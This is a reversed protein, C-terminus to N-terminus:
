QAHVFQGWLRWNPQAPWTSAVIGRPTFRGTYHRGQFELWLRGGAKVRGSVTMPKSFDPTYRGQITKDPNFTLTLTGFDVNFRRITWYDSAPDLFTKYLYTARHNPPPTPAAAAVTASSARPPAALMALVAFVLTALRCPRKM